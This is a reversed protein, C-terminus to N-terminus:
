NDHSSAQHFRFTKVSTSIDEFTPMSAAGMASAEDAAPPTVNVHFHYCCIQFPSAKSNPLRVARL